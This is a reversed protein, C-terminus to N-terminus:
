DEGALREFLAQRHRELRDDLRNGPEFLITMLLADEHTDRYYNRRRGVQKLGYKAYLQQAPTNSERVELTFLSANGQRSLLLMNLFLLEGLGRGRWAPEIAITNVHIEDVLLWFGAFGVLQSEASVGQYHAIHNDPALENTFTIRHAPTPFSLADIRLMEDIDNLNLRRLSYPAPPTLM